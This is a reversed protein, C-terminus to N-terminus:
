DKSRNIMSYSNDFQLPQTYMQNQYQYAQSNNQLNSSNNYNVQQNSQIVNQPMQSQYQMRQPHQKQQPSMFWQINSTNNANNSAGPNNTNIQTPLTFNGYDDQQLMPHNNFNLNGFHQQDQPYQMPQNFSPYQSMMNRNNMQPYQSQVPSAYDFAPYGQVQMVQPIDNNEQIMNGYNTGNINDDSILLNNQDQINNDNIFSRKYYMDNNNNVENSNIFNNSSNGVNVDDITINNIDNNTKMKMNVSDIIRRQNLEIESAKDLAVERSLTTNIVKADGINADNNRNASASATLSESSIQEDLKYDAKLSPIYINEKDIKVPVCTYDPLKEYMYSAYDLPTLPDPSALGSTAFFRASDPTLMNPQNSSYANGHLKKSPHGNGYDLSKHSRKGKKKQLASIDVSELIKSFEENFRLDNEENQEAGNEILKYVEVETDSLPIDNTEKNLIAKKLVQIHSSIQKKTRYEKTRYLIYFSILENRGYNRDKIKIKSTGNKMILRLSAVFADEVIPSWKDYGDKSESPNFDTKKGHDLSPSVETDNNNNNSSSSHVNSTLTASPTQLMKNYTPDYAQSDLESRSENNQNNNSGDKVDDTKISRNDMLNDEERKVIYNNKSDNVLSNNNISSSNSSAVISSLKKDNERKIQIKNQFEESNLDLYPLKNRAYVDKSYVDFVQYEFANFIADNNNNEQEQINLSNNNSNEIKVSNNNDNNYEMTNTTNIIKDTPKIDVESRQINLNHLPGISM